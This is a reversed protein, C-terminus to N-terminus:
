CVAFLCSFLSGFNYEKLVSGFEVFLDFCTMYVLFSFVYFILSVVFCSSLFTLPYGSLLLKQRSLVRHSSRTNQLVKVDNRSPPIFSRIHLEPFSRSHEKEGRM